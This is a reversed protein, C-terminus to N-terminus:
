YNEEDTWFKGLKRKLKLTPKNILPIKPVLTKGFFLLYILWILTIISTINSIKELWSLKYEFVVKGVNDTIPVYM